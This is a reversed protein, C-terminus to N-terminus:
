FNIKLDELNSKTSWPINIFIPYSDILVKKERFMRAAIKTALALCSIELMVRDNFEYVPPNVSVTLKETPSLQGWPTVIKFSITVTVNRVKMPNIIEDTM